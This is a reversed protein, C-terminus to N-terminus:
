TSIIKEPSMGALEERTGKPLANYLAFAIEQLEILDTEAMAWDLRQGLAQALIKIFSKYTEKLITVEKSEGFDPPKTVSCVWNSEGVPVLMLWKGEGRLKQRIDPPIGFVIAFQNDELVAKRALASPLGFPARDSRMQDFWTRMKGWAGTMLDESGNGVTRSGEQVIPM